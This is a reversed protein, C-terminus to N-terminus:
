QDRHEEDQKGNLQMLLTLLQHPVCCPLQYHARLRRGIDAQITQLRLAKDLAYQDDLADQDRPEALDLWRQTMGLVSARMSWDTMQKAFILREAALQRREHSRDSSM